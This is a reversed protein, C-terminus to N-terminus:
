PDDEMLVEKDGLTGTGKSQKHLVDPGSIWIKSELFVKTSLVCSAVDAPNEKFPHAEM